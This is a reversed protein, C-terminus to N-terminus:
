KKRKKTAKAFRPQRANRGSVADRISKGLPNDWLVNDRKGRVVKLKKRTRPDAEIGM